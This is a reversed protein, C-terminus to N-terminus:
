NKRTASVMKGHAILNNNTYARVTSYFLSGFVQNLQTEYLILQGQRAYGTIEMEASGVFGVSSYPELLRQNLASKLISTIEDPEDNMLRRLVECISNFKLGAEVLRKELASIVIMLNCCQGLGEIVYMSPWHDDAEDAPHLPGRDNIAYNALLTPSKGGKYSNITDVMLFPLRHPLLITILSHNYTCTVDM